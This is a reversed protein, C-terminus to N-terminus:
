YVIESIYGYPRIDCVSWSDGIDAWAFLDQKKELRKNELSSPYALTAPIGALFLFVRKHLSPM